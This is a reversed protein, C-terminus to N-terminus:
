EDDKKLDYETDCGESTIGDTDGSISTTSATGNTKPTTGGDNVWAAMITFTSKYKKEKKPRFTIKTPREVEIYQSDDDRNHVKITTTKRDVEEYSHECERLIVASGTDAIQIPSPVTGASGWKLSNNTVDVKKSTAVLKKASLFERRAFPRVIQELSM